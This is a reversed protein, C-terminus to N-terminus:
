AVRSREPELPDRRVRGTAWRAVARGEHAPIAGTTALALAYVGMGAGLVLIPDQHRLLGMVLAMAGAALIVPRAVRVLPRWGLHPALARRCIMFIVSEATLYAAVAGTVGWRPVLLAGLGLNVALGALTAELYRRQRGLAPLAYRATLNLFIVTLGLGLWRIATAAPAFDGGHFLRAILAPALVVLVATLPLSIILEWRVAEHLARGFGGDGRDARRALMPFVAISVASAVFGFPQTLLYAVQFQAVQAPGGFAHLLLVGVRGYLVVSMMALGFPFGQRVLWVLRAVRLSGRPRGLIRHVLVAGVGLRVAFAVTAAALLGVMELHLAVGAAVLGLWVGQSLLLLAAELDLREHARLAWLAVDASPDLLATVLVVGLLVASPGSATTGLAVAGLALMALGLGARIRLADGLWRGGSAPNRAMGRMVIVGIGGDALSAILPIMAYYWAYEGYGAANLANGLLIMGALNILASLAQAGLRVLANRGVRLGATEAELAAPGPPGARVDRRTRPAPAPGPARANLLAQYDRRLREIIAREDYARLAARRAEAGMAARLPPSQIMRELAAALDAVGDPEVLLGTRGHEVAERTGTVRTAVVPVEMAMAELVARPLGEKRSTLVAVDTDALLAPVDERYGLFEVDDAIGLARCRDSLHARLPGDGALRLRFPVGRRRLVAAAELLLDHNKVPELRAVCTLRAHGNAPPRQAPPQFRELDIGNGIHRRRDPRGIHLRDARDLDARNQTLLLHTWSACWREIAVFLRSTVGQSRDHFHFGHVTHVVVPVGACAAALRGVVGPISCHTHVLEIRNRRLYRLIAVFSRVLRIPDLGRPLPIVHVPIGDARLRAVYPGDMCLIRNDYGAARLALVRGRLLTWASSSLNIIDVVRRGSM